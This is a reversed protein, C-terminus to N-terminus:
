QKAIAQQRFSSGRRFGVASEANSDSGLRLAISEAFGM